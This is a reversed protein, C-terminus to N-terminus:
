TSSFLIQRTTESFGAMDQDSFYTELGGTDSRDAISETRERSLSRMAPEPYIESQKQFSPTTTSAFRMQNINSSEIGEYRGTTSFSIYGSSDAHAVSSRISTDSENGHMIGKPPVNFNYTSATPTTKNVHRHNSAVLDDVKKSLMQNSRASAHIIIPFMRLFHYLSM